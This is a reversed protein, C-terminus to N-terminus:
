WQSFIDKSGGTDPTKTKSTTKTTTTTKPTATKPIAGANTQLPASQLPASPTAVPAASAQASTETPPAPASAAPAVSATDPAAVLTPAASAATVRPAARRTSAFVIATVVAAMAVLGGTALVLRRGKRSSPEHADHALAVNGTMPGPFRAGGPGMAVVASTAPLSQRAFRLAHQMTRADSWRKDREFMLARDVVDCLERPVDPVVTALPPARRTMASLLVKNLTEATHILQGSLVYFMIAGVAWLDTRGDIEATHGLAQEPPMFAPTGMIHGVETMRGNSASEGMRATGFDLIKVDGNTTLFVNEPKLDRHVIGKDHAAALVDLLKDVVLAIDGPRMRAGPFSRAFDELTQGELLEMVLFVSGDEAMDDDLVVVAGPHGIRNAVYGERLFRRRAEENVSIDPRLLKVAGRKGNRHTAAYVCASGGVGLLADLRWKGRLIQGVRAAALAHVDVAGASM